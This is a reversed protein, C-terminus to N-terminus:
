IILYDGNETIMRNGNEDILYTNTSSTILVWSSNSRAYLGGDEPAEPIFGTINISVGNSKNLILTGGSITGGTIENNTNGTTSNLTIEFSSGDFKTLYLINTSFTGGTITKDVLENFKTFLGEKIKDTKLLKEIM